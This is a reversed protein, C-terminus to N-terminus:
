SKLLYLSRALCFCFNDRPASESGEVMENALAIAGKGFFAGIIRARMRPELRMWWDVYGKERWFANAALGAKEKVGKGIRVAKRGGVGGGGAAAWSMRLAIELRNALFEEIVYYGKDNLWPLEPFDQCALVALDVEGEGCCLFRGGSIEDMAAVFGDLDALFAEAVTIADPCRSSAPSSPFLLINAFLLTQARSGAAARALLGRSLRSLVTPEEAGRASGSTSPSSSSSHLVFFSSHGRLRLRRVMSLLAAAAAPSLLSAAAAARAAPTLSALWRLIAARPSSSSSSSSSSSASAAAAPSPNAAAHYLSLHATLADMLEKTTRPAASTSAM